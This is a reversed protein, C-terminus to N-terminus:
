AAASTAQRYLIPLTTRVLGQFKPKTYFDLYEKTKVFMASLPAIGEKATMRRAHKAINSAVFEPSAMPRAFRGCDRQVCLYRAIHAKMHFAEIIQDFNATRAGYLETVVPVNSSEAIPLGVKHFSRATYNM